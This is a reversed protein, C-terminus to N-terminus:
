EKKRARFGHLRETGEKLRVINPKLSWVLLFGALLGFYAYTWPFYGMAAGVGFVLTSLFAVSMTTVSAYGVFYFILVAIIFIVIGSPWWLGLSGGLCTAGGAGGALRFKGDPRRQILFISYNHGIIAFVPALIELWHSGDLYMTRALWVTVTGKGIDLLATSLGVGLGAARMANTGGTRGSQIDRIDNGTKLKVIIFGFPIAGIIYSLVIVGFFTLLDM